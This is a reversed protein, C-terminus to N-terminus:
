LCHLISERVTAIYRQAGQGAYGMGNGVQSPHGDTLTYAFIVANNAILHLHNRRTEAPDM